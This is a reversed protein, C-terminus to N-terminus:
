LLNASCKKIKKDVTLQHSNSLSASTIEESLCSNDKTEALWLLVIEEHRSTNWVYQESSPVWLLCCWLCSSLCNLGTIFCTRPTGPPTLPPTPHPNLSLSFSLFLCLSLSFFFHLASVSLSLCLCLSLSLSVSLPGWQFDARDQGPVVQRCTGPIWHLLRESPRAARAARHRQQSDSDACTAPHVSPGRFLPERVPEDRLQVSALDFPFSVHSQNFRRYNTHLTGEDTHEDYEVHVSLCDGAFLIM